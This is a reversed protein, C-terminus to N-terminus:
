RATAFSFVLREGPRGKLRFVVTDPGIQAVEGAVVSLSGRELGLSSLDFRWTGPRRTGEVLTVELRHAGPELALSVPATGPGPFFAQAGDVVVQGRGGPVALDTVLAGSARGGARFRFGCGRGNLRVDVRSVQSVNRCRDEAVALITFRDDPLSCGPFTWHVSYVNPPSSPTSALGILKRAGCSGAPCYQYFCRVEKVGSGTDSAVAEITV